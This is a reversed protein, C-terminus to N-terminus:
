GFTTWREHESDPSVATTNIQGRRAKCMFKTRRRDISLWPVFYRIWEHRDSIVVSQEQFHLVWITRKAFKHHAITDPPERVEQVSRIARDKLEIGNNACAADQGPKAELQRGLSACVETLTRIVEAVINDSGIRTHRVAYVIRRM